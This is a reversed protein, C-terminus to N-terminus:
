RARDQLQLTAAREIWEGTADQVTETLTIGTETIGTIRGYNQGIHDGVRVTYLLADVRLLAHAQGQRVLSGVMAMSDLPFSELTEKRRQLQSALLSSPARAEQRLSGSLRQSDFPEVALAQSYPEPEFTKPPELPSVNPKIASRQREMWDRLEHHDASCGSLLAVALLACVRAGLRPRHLARSV